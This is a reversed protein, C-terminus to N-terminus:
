GLRHEGTTYSSRGAGDFSSSRLNGTVKAVDPGSVRFAVPWPAYPGFIFRSARARAESVLGAALRERLSALLREQAQRDPTSIILKAFNPNPLEPNYPLFFRPAGGGIYSTVIQAEPQQKLWAELANVSKETAEISAGQPLTIDVLIEARDSNPFFQQELLSMSFCQRSSCDWSRQRSSLKTPSRGSSRAASGRIPRRRM